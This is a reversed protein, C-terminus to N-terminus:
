VVIFKGCHKSRAPKVLKCTVCKVGSKFIVEDYEYVNAYKKHNKERIIGPDSYCCVIFLLTNIVLHLMPAFTHNSTMDDAYLFPLTHFLLIWHGAVVLFIFLGQFIHHRSLLFFLKRKWTWSDINYIYRASNTLLMNCELINEM